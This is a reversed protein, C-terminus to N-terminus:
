KSLRESIYIKEDRFFKKEMNNNENNIIYQLSKSADQWLELEKYINYLAKQVTVLQHKTLSKNKKHSLYDTYLNISKNLDREVFSGNSYIWALIKIAEVDDAQAHKKVENVYRTGDGTYYGIYLLSRWSGMSYAKECWEELSYPAYMSSKACQQAAQEVTLNPDNIDITHWLSNAYVNNSILNLTLLIFFSIKVM